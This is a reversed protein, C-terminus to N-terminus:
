SAYVYAGPGDTRDPMMGFHGMVRQFHRHVFLVDDYDVWDGLEERFGELDKKFLSAWQHLEHEALLELIGSEPLIERGLGSYAGFFRAVATLADGVLRASAEFYGELNLDKSYGRRLRPIEEFVNRLATLALAEFHDLQAANLTSHSACFFAEFVGSTYHHLLAEYSDELPKLTREPFRVAILGALACSALLSTVARQADEVREHEESILDAAVSSHLVGRTKAEGNSRFTIPTGITSLGETDTPTIDSTTVGGLGVSKLGERYDHAFTFGEMAYIPMRAAFAEVLPKLQEVVATALADDGFDLFSVQLLGGDKQNADAWSREPGHESPVQDKQDDEFLEEIGETFAEDIMHVISSRMDDGLGGALGRLEDAVYSSLFFSYCARAAHRNFRSLDVPDNTDIEGVALRNPALPLAVAILDDADFFILPKWERGDFAISTCDPLIVGKGHTPAVRWDLRNLKEVVAKPAMTKRLADTQAGKGIPGAGSVLRDVLAKVPLAEGLLGGPNERMLFYLLECITKESVPRLQIGKFKRWERSIATLIKPPPRSRPLMTAFGELVEDVLGPMAESMAFVSEDMIGRMHSSRTSLHAVVESIASGDIRSGVAIERIEDVIRSLRHEYDTVLDDVTPSGDSSPTSYFYEQAAAKRRAVMFGSPNGRRFMWLSDSSEPAVFPRLFHKPIFHQKKGAM